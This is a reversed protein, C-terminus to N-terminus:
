FHLIKLEFYRRM